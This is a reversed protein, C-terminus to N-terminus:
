MLDQMLIISGFEEGCDRCIFGDGWEIV